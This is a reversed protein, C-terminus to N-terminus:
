ETGEKRQPEPGGTVPAAEVPDIEGPAFYLFRGHHRQLDALPDSIASVAVHVHRDANFTPQMLVGFQFRSRNKQVTQRYPYLLSMRSPQRSRARVILV